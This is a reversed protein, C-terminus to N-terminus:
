ITIQKKPWPNKIKIMWRAIPLHDAPLVAAEPVAKALRITKQVVAEPVAKAPTEAEPTTPQWLM